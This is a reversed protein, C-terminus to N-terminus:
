ASLARGSFEESGAEEGAVAFWASAAGLGLGAAEFGAAGALGVGAVVVGLEMGAGGGFADERFVVEGLGEGGLVGGEGGGGGGGGGHCSIKAAVGSGAAKESM